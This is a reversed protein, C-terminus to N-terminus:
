SLRELHKAHHGFFLGHKGEPKQEPSVERGPLYSVPDDTVTCDIDFTANRELSKIWRIPPKIAPGKQILHWNPELRLHLRGAQDCELGLLYSVLKTPPM